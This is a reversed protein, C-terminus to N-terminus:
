KKKKQRLNIHPKRKFEIFFEYFDDIEIEQEIFALIDEDEYNKIIPSFEFFDNKKDSFYITYTNLGKNCTARKFDERKLKTIKKSENFYKDTDIIILSMDDLRYGIIFSNYIYEEIRKGHKLNTNYAYILEYNENDDISNIFLEKMKEKTKKVKEQRIKKRKFLFM